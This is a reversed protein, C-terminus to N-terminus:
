RITAIVDVSTAVSPDAKSTIRVSERLEGAKARAGDITVTLSEKAKPPIVPAYDYYLCRCQSRAVDVSLPQDSNNAIEFQRVARTGKRIEGYDHSSPTAALVGPAAPEEALTDPATAPATTGATDEVITDAPRDSSAWWILGGIAGLAVLTAIIILPIRSRPEADAEPISTRSLPHSAPTRTAGAAEAPPRTAGAAEAPPRTPGAAEAPPRGLAATGVGATGVGTGVGGVELEDLKVLARDIEAILRQYESALHETPADATMRALAERHQRYHQRMVEIERAREGRKLNITGFDDSM